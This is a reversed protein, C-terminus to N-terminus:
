RSTPGTIAPGTDLRYISIGFIIRVLHYRERFVKAV